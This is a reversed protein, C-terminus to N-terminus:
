KNITHLMFGATKMPGHIPVFPPLSIKEIIFAAGDGFCGAAQALRARAPFLLVAEQGAGQSWCARPFIPRRRRGVGASFGPLYSSPLGGWRKGTVQLAQERGAHEAWGMEKLCPHCSSSSPLPGLAGPPMAAKAKSPEVERDM